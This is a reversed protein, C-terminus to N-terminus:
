TCGGRHGLNRRSSQRLRVGEKGSRRVADFTVVHGFPGRFEFAQITVFVDLQAQTILAAQVCGQDSLVRRRFRAGLAMGFVVAAVEGQDVPISGDPAEIVPAGAIRELPFVGPKGALVTVLRRVDGLGCDLGYGHLVQAPGIQAQAPFADVAMGVRVMSLQAGRALAAVISGTPLFRGMEIVAARLEPQLSRMLFDFACLAVGPGLSRGAVDLVFADSEGVASGAMAIRVPSCEVCAAPRAVVDGVPFRHLDGRGEVMELGPIRQQALVCCHGALATMVARVEFLSHSECFARIAVLGVRMVSLELMPRPATIAGFAVLHFAEFGGQERDLLVLRCTEREEAGVLRHRACFAVRGSSCFRLVPDIGGAATTMCVHVLVLERSRRILVSALTAM